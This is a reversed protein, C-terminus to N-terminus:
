RNKLYNVVESVAARAHSISETINMQAVCCGAYFIGKKGSLNSGYHNDVPKFFRNESCKLLSREALKINGEPMETGVMLVVMDLEMRLPRGALTDEAKTVLKGNINVSIESVKGRIFTIGYKEQAERYLEEYYPGGMRMDMYFCFIEAGPIKEKIEIAQKVATVCCLKSCYYNGVKEDRSGVCHIFGVKEPLKGNVLRVGGSRFMKELDASTIVNDYIGYGYEEKRRSDFLEFGTAVIVADAELVTGDSSKIDFKGNRSSIETIEKGTLIKIDPHSALKNLYDIVEKSDRRDPFLHYWNKVNGGTKENKEAVTVSYGMRALQGAAELGSVGGGIVVINEM